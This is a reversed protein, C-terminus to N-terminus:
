GGPPSRRQLRLNLRLCRAAGLEAKQSIPSAWTEFRSAEQFTVLSTFGSLPSLQYTTTCPCTWDVRIGQVLFTPEM